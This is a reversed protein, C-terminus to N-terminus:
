LFYPTVTSGFVWTSMVEPPLWAMKWAKPAM